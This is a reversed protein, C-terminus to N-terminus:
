GGDTILYYVKSNYAYGEGKKKKEPKKGKPSMSAHRLHRSEKKASGGRTVCLSPSEHPNTEKKEKRKKYGLNVTGEFALSRKKSDEEKKPGSRPLPAGKERRRRSASRTEPGRRRTHNAERKRVERSGVSMSPLPRGKRKRCILDAIRRLFWCREPGRYKEKGPGKRLNVAAFAPGKGRKRKGPKGKRPM